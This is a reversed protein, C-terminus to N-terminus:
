AGSGKAGPSRIVRSFTETIWGGADSGKLGRGLDAGVTIVLDEAKLLEAAEVPYDDLLGSLTESFFGTIEDFGRYTGGGRLRMRVRDRGYEVLDRAVVDRRVTELNEQSM